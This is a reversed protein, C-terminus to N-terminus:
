FMAILAVGAVMLAGGLLRGLGAAHQEFGLWGFHDLVLSALVSATVTLAVYIAAGVKQAVLLQSMVYTAGLLGGIWAWWPLSTLKASGPWALQGSVGGTVLITSLSVLTIILAASFPQELSKNLSANAGAQVSNLAGALLAFGYLFWM